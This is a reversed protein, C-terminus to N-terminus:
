MLCSKSRFEKSCPLTTLTRSMPATIPAVEAPRSESPSPRLFASPTIPATNMMPVAIALMAFPYATSMTPRMM